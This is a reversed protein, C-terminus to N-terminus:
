FDDLATVSFGLVVLTLLATFVIRLCITLIVSDNVTIGTWISYYIFGVFALLAVGLICLCIFIIVYMITTLIDKFDIDTKKWRWQMKNRRM